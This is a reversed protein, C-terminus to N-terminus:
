RKSIVGQKYKKYEEWLKAQLEPDTEKMAAERLQRAVVDDDHGSPIGEPITVQNPNNGGSFDGKRNAGPLNPMIGGGANSSSSGRAMSTLLPATEEGNSGDETGDVGYYGSGEAQENRGNRASQQEGLIMGDFQALQENFQDELAGTREGETMVGGGFPSDQQSGTGGSGGYGGQQSGPGGSGGGSAAAYDGGAGEQGQEGGGSPSGGGAGEQGQEGGGASQQQGGSEAYQPGSYPENYMSEEGGQSGGGGAEATEGGEAGAEDFSPMDSAAGGSNPIIEAGLLPDEQSPGGSEGYDSGDEGAPSSNGATQGLIDSDGYNSDQGDSGAPEQMGGQSGMTQDFVDMAESLVQDESSM